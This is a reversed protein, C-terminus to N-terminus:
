STRAQVMLTPSVAGLGCADDVAVELAAEDAGLGDGEVVEDGELALLAGLVRALHAGFALFIDDLIAVHHVEQEVDSAACAAAPSSFCSGRKESFRAKRPKEQWSRKMEVRQAAM